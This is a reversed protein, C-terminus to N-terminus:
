PTREFVLSCNSGGFGFSNTLVRSAAAPANARLYRCGLAPDVQTTHLGGPLLRDRLALISVVAETIGAAGLLHGTHGKTSSCPVDDGFLAMVARAESADNAKTATGHVNIYDIDGPQLGASALAAAMARRAGEGEPHPSSMHYADSSEGIGTFRVAAPRDSRELLAFGAGEGISIGDRDRDFPRCPLASVLDLANFGYLTTLCLTDVGGVVAADILGLEIMQQANGFVKASSSCASSVVVAPGDLALFTRVFDALSYCNHTEAYRYGSPLAGTQADRSRYAIETELVGSTSTGAFVGVRAPGYRARANAVAVAFDDEVLCVAALRNNRCEYAQFAHPLPQAELGAVRGIWTSLNVTDFDCPALGSRGERLGAATAEVGSGLANVLTFATVALPQM